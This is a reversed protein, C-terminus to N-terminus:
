LGLRGKGAGSGALFLRRGNTGPKAMMYTLGTKKVAELIRELEEITMAAPVASIVHKGAKMAELDMWAHLPLPTFVAVADLGPHKLFERFNRYTSGCKYVESLRQLRDPRLDCVAAVTCDPHLHWQFSSGFGGGVVGIKLRKGGGSGTQAKAADLLTAAAALGAPGQFFNRRTVGDGGNEMTLEKSNKSLSSRSTWLVYLDASPRPICRRRTSAWSRTSARWYSKSM